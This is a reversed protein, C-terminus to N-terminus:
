TALVEDSAANVLAVYQGAQVSLRALAESRSGETLLPEWHDRASNMASIAHESGRGKAADKQFQRLRKASIWDPALFRTAAECAAHHTVGARRQAALALGAVTGRAMAELVHHANGKKTAGYGVLLLSIYTWVATGSPNCRLEVSLDNVASLAAPVLGNVPM